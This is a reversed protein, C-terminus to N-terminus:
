VKFVSRTANAATRACIKMWGLSMGRWRPWVSRRSRLRIAGSPGKRVKSVNPGAFLGTVLVVPNEPAWSDVRPPVYEWMYRLLLGKGGVYREAWEMNLSETTASCGTLDVRLVKGQYFDVAVEQLRLRGGDLRIM